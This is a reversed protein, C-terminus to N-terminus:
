ESGIRAERNIVTEDEDDDGDDNDVDHIKWCYKECRTMVMMMM